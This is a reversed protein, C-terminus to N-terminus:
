QGHCRKYKKGSGCPCPDNRGIHEVGPQPLLIPIPAPPAQPPAMAQAGGGAAAALLQQQVEPPLQISAPDVGPPLVIQMGPMPVGPFLPVVIPSDSGPQGPAIAVGAPVVLQQAMLTELDPIPTKAVWRVADEELAEVMAQFMDYAEMRYDILPDRQAYGRLFVGEKLDDMLTLHEQWHQDVARLM